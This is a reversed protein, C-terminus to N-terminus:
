IDKAKGVHEGNNLCIVLLYFTAIIDDKRTTKFFNMQDYSACLINGQFTENKASDSIHRGDDDLYSSSFGFYILTVRGTQQNIM